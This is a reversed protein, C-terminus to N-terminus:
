DGQRRLEGLVAEAFRRRTRTDTAALLHHMRYDTIHAIRPEWGARITERSRLRAAAVVDQYSAQLGGVSDAVGGIGIRLVVEHREDVAKLLSRCLESSDARSTRHFAVLRARTGTPM